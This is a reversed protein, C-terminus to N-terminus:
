FIILIRMNVSRHVSAHDLESCLMEEDERGQCRVHQVVAGAQGLSQLRAHCKFDDPRCVLDTATTVTLKTDATDARNRQRVRDDTM